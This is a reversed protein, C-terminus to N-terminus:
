AQETPKRETLQSDATAGVEIGSSSGEGVGEAVGDAPEPENKAACEEQTPAEVSSAVQVPLPVAVAAAVRDREIAEEAARRRQEDAERRQREREAVLREGGGPWFSIAFLVLAREITRLRARIGGEERQRAELMRQAAEEPTFTGNALRENDTARANAPRAQQAIVNEPIRILGDWHRQLYTIQDRFIGAQYGWYIVTMVVLLITRRISNGNGGLFLWFIGYARVFLWLARFFPALGLDMGNEAAQPNAPAAAQGAQPQFPQQLVLQQQAAPGQEAQPLNQAPPEPQAPQTSGDQQTNRSPPRTGNRSGYRLSRFADQFSAHSINPVGPGTSMQEVSTFTGQPTYVIAQPGSPSNLLYASVNGTSSAPISQSAAAGASSGTPATSTPQAADPAPNGPIRDITVVAARVLARYAQNLDQYHVADSTSIPQQNGQPGHAMINNIQEQLNNRTDIHEHLVGRAISPQPLVASPTMGEHTTSDVQVVLEEIWRSLSEGLDTARQISVNQAPLNTQPQYMSPDINQMPGVQAGFPTLMMQPMMHPMMPQFGPQNTTTVGNVTITWRQGQPGVGSRTTPGQGQTNPLQFHGHSGPFLAAMNPLAPNTTTPPNLGADGAPTAQAVAPTATTNGSHSAQPGAQFQYQGYSQPMGARQQAQAHQAMMQAQQAQLMILQARRQNQEIMAQMMTNMNADQLQQGGGQAFMTGPQPIQPMQPLGQADRPALAANLLRPVGPQAPPAFSPAVIGSDPVQPPLNLRADRIVLHIVQAERLQITERGLIDLLTDDERTLVRGRYILRQAELSPTGPLTTQVLFKLDNVTTSPSINNFPLVSNPEPLQTLVRVNVTETEPTDM